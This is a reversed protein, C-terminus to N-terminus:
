QWMIDLITFRDKNGTAGTPCNNVIEITFDGVIPTELEWTDTYVVYKEDKSLSKAIVHTQEEGNALNTVKVTVSLETDTFMKTFDIVIKTLTGSLSPSTISGPATKKGNLCAARHTNDPGIVPFQPNMVTAGGAQIASNKITWGSETVYTATYSSDGNPKSSPLKITDFDVYQPEAPVIEAEKMGFVLNSVKYTANQIVQNNDFNGESGFQITLKAGAAVDAKLNNDGVVIDIENGNFKIKGAVTSNLTLSVTEYTGVPSAFLQFGHWCNAATTSVVYTAVENEVSADVNVYSDAWNQDNWYLLTTGVNGELGAKVEEGFKTNYLVFGEEVEPFEPEEPLEVSDVVGTVVLNKFTYTATLMANNADANGGSVGFQISLIAGGEGVVGNYEKSIVINNDGVVIDTVVGNVTIQGAVTSNLVFSSTYPNGFIMGPVAIFLQLAFWNSGNLLQSNITYNGNEFSANVQVNSGCWGQDNWYKITKGLNTSFADTESGFEIGYGAILNDKAVEDAAAIENIVKTAVASDAWQTAEETKVSASVEFNYGWASSPVNNITFAILYNYEVGFVQSASLTVDNAVVHTYATTVRQDNFSKVVTEGDKAVIDFKAEDYKISDIGVVFRIHRVGETEASVQAKVASIKNAAEENAAKKVLRGTVPKTFEETLVDRVELNQAERADLKTALGISMLAVLLTGGLIKSIKRM